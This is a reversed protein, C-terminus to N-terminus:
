SAPSPAKAAPSAAPPKSAPAAKPKRAPAPAKDAGPTVSVGPPLDGINEFDIRNGTGAGAIFELRPCKDVEMAVMHENRARLARREADGKESLDVPPYVDRYVVNDNRDLLLYCTVARAPTACAAACVTLVLLTKHM